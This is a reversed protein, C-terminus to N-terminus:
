NILRDFKGIVGDFFGLLSYKLKIKKQNEFLCIKIIQAVRGLLSSLIWRPETLMYRKAIILHNRMMYYRRSPPHNTTETTKWPLRHTTVSGISHQMLLTNIQMIRFGMTRARFCYEIDVYDIFLDECFPGIKKLAEVPILSGSTILFKVECFTSIEILEQQIFQKGSEVNSYCPGIIGISQHCEMNKFTNCLVEVLNDSIYTDQDFLIVWKYNNAVAWEIGQNLAIAVGLNASNYIINAGSKTSFNNLIALSSSSSNNDVVVINDVQGSIRSLRDEFGFDPNFSTVVACINQKIPFIM